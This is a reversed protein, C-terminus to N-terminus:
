ILSIKMKLQQKCWELRKVKNVERLIQCYHPKTCIWGRIQRAVKVAFLSVELFPYKEKLKTWLQESTLEDNNNMVEDIMDEM